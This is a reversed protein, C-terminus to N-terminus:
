GESLGPSGEINEPVLEFDFIENGLSKFEVKGSRKRGLLSCLSRDETCHVFLATEM